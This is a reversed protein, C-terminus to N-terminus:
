VSCPIFRDRRDTAERLHYIDVLEVLPRIYLSFGGSQNTEHERRRRFTAGQILYAIPPILGQIDVRDPGASYSLKFANLGSCFTYGNIESLGCKVLIQRAAAVEQLVQTFEIQL